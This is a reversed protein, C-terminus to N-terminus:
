PAPRLAAAHLPKGQHAPVSFHLKHGHRLSARGPHLRSDGQSHQHRRQEGPHGATGRLTRRGTYVLPSQPRSCLLQFLSESGSWLTLTSGFTHPVLCWSISLSSGRELWFCSVHSLRDVVVLYIGIRVVRHGSRMANQRTGARGHHVQKERM